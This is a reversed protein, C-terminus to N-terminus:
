LVTFSATKINQIFIGVKGKIIMFISIILVFIGARLIM